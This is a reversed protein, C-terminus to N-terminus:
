SVIYIRLLQIAKSTIIGHRIAWPLSFLQLSTLPPTTVLKESFAPSYIESVLTSLLEFVCSKTGSGTIECSRKTDIDEADCRSRITDDCFHVMMPHSVGAVRYIQLIRCRVRKLNTRVRANVCYCIVAVSYVDDTSSDAKGTCRTLQARDAHQIRVLALNDKPILSRDAERTESARWGHRSQQLVKLKLSRIEM